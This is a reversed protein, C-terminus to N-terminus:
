KATRSLEPLLDWRRAILAEKKARRWGKVQKEFAIAQNIDGFPEHFVLVLPRRKFTYCHVIIGQQHEQFRRDIDNTVGTYYSGDNCRIIYVFYQHFM